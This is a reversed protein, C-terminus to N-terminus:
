FCVRGFVRLKKINNAEQGSISRAYLFIVNAFFSSCLAPYPGINQGNWMEKSGIVNIQFCKKLDYLNKQSGENKLHPLFDFPTNLFIELELDCTLFLVIQM